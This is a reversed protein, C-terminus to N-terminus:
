KPKTMVSNINAGATTAVRIAKYFGFVFAFVFAFVFDFLVYAIFLVFFDDPENEGHETPSM